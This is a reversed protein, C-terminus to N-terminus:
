NGTKTERSRLQEILWDTAQRTDFPKQFAALGCERAHAVAAESGTFLAFPIGRKQALGAIHPWNSRVGGFNPSPTRSEPSPPRSTPFSGDCLVGDACNLREIADELNTALLIGEVGHLRFYQGVMDALIRDDEVILLKM